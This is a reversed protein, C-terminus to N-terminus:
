DAGEPESADLQDPPGYPLVNERGGSVIVQPLRAIHAKRGVGGILRLQGTLLAHEGGRFEALAGAAGGYAMVGGRLTELKTHGGRYVQIAVYVGCQCVSEGDWTTGLMPDAALQVPTVIAPYSPAWDDDDSM